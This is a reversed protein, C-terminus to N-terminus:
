PSEYASHRNRASRGIVLEHVNTRAGAEESEEDDRNLKLRGERLRTISGDGKIVPGPALSWGARDDGRISGHHGIAPPSPNVNQLYENYEEVRGATQAAEKAKVEAEGEQMYAELKEEDTKEDAM